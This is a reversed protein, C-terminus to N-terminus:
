GLTVSVLTRKPDLFMGRPTADLPSTDFRSEANVMSIAMYTYPSSATFSVLCIANSLVVPPTSRIQHHVATSSAWSPACVYNAPAQRAKNKFELSKDVSTVIGAHRQGKLRYASSRKCSLNDKMPQWAKMFM